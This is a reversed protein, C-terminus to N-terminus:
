ISGQPPYKNHGTYSFAYLTLYIVLHPIAQYCLSILLHGGSLIGFLLFARPLWTLHQMDIYIHNLLLLKGRNVNDLPFQIYTVWVITIPM